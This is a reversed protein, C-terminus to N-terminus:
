FISFLVTENRTTMCVYALFARFTYVPTRYAPMFYHSNLFDKNLENQVREVDVSIGAPFGEIVGGMAKGHSEGFTSVKFITGFTSGSM